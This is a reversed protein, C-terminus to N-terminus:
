FNRPDKKWPVIDSTETLWALIEEKLRTKHAAFRNDGALNVREQPDTELDYLEEYEGQGYVYKWRDDRRMIRRGPVGPHDTFLRISDEYVSGIYPKLDTVCYHEAATYGAEAYVAERCRGAPDDTIGPFGQIGMIRGALSIGQHPQKPALGAMELITPYLDLCATLGHDVLGGRAAASAESAASAEATGAAPKVVLPVHLMPEEFAYNCKEVQGYDGAYDGHDSFVFVATDEYLGREKLKDLLLGLHHDLRSIMGYYVARIERFDEEDLDQLKRAHYMLDSLRNHDHFSAPVPPRVEERRHLSFYPEEVCYPPHAFTIPLFLCFPEEHSEDLFSLASEVYTWDKDRSAGEARRGKYFSGLPMKRAQEPPPGSFAGSEMRPLCEDFTLGIAEGTVFDNKGFCVTRYGAERLERFLNWEDRKLLNQLSRHGHVHPYLGTFMSCRSPTCFPSQSYTRSFSVGEAALADLVPTKARGAPDGTVADARVTEPMFLLFNPKRNSGTMQSAPM